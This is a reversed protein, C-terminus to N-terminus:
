LMVVVSRCWRGFVPSSAFEAHFKADGYEKQLAFGAQALERVFYNLAGVNLFHNAPYVIIHVRLRLAGTEIFIVDIKFIWRFSPRTM